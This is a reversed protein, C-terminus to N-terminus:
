LKQVISKKVDISKGCYVCKKVAKELLALEKTPQYKMNNNCKKCHLLYM